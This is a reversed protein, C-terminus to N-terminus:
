VWRRQGVRSFPESKDVFRGVSYQSEYNDHFENIREIKGKLKVMQKKIALEVEDKIKESQIRKAESALKDQLKKKWEKWFGNGLINEHIKEQLLFAPFIVFDFLDKCRWFGEVNLEEAEIKINEVFTALNPSFYFRQECKSSVFTHVDRLSIMEDNDRDILRFVFMIVSKEDLVGFELVCKMFEFFSMKNPIEKKCIDFLFNSYLMMGSVQKENILTLFEQRNMYGNSKQNLDDFINKLAFVWELNLCHTKTFQLLKPNNFPFYDPFQKVGNEIDTELPKESSMIHGM